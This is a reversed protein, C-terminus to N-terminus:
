AVDGTTSPVAVLKGFISGKADAKNESREVLKRLWRMFEARRAAGYGGSAYTALENDSMATIQAATFM